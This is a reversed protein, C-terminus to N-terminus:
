LTKRKKQPVHKEQQKSFLFDMLDQNKPSMNKRKKIEVNLSYKQAQANLMKVICHSETSKRKQDILVRSNNTDCGVNIINSTSPVKNIKIKHKYQKMINIETTAQIDTSNITNSHALINVMPQVLQCNDTNLNDQVNTNIQNCCFTQYLTEFTPFQFWNIAPHITKFSSDSYLIYDIIVCGGLFCKDWGSPLWTAWFDETKCNKIITCVMLFNVYTECNSLKSTNVVNRFIVNLCAMFVINKDIITDLMKIFNEVLQKLQVVLKLKSNSYTNFKIRLNNNKLLHVLAGIHKHYFIDKHYSIIKKFIKYKKKIDEETNNTNVLCLNQILKSSSGNYLMKQVSSNTQSSKENLCPTNTQNCDLKSPKSLISSSSDSIILSTHKVSTTSHVTYNSSKSSKILFTDNGSLKKKVNQIPVMCQNNNVIKLDSNKHKNYNKKSCNIKKQKNIGLIYKNNTLLIPKIM